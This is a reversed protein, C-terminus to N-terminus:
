QPKLPSIFFLSILVCVSVLYLITLILIKKYNKKVKKQKALIILQIILFVPFIIIIWFFIIKVLLGILAIFSNTNEFFIHGNYYNHSPTYHYFAIGIISFILFVIIEIKILKTISNEQLMGTILTKLYKM